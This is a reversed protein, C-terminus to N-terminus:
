DRRTRREPESNVEPRMLLDSLVVNLMETMRIIELGSSQADSNRIALHELRRSIEKLRRVNAPTM